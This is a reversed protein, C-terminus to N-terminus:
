LYKKTYTDIFAYKIFEILSTMKDVDSFCNSFRELFILEQEPTEFFLGKKTDNGDKTLMYVVNGDDNQYYDVSEGNFSVKWVGGYLEMKKAISKRGCYATYNELNNNLRINLKNIKAAYKM